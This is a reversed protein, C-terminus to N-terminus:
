TEDRREQTEIAFMAYQHANLLQASPADFPTYLADMTSKFFTKTARFVLSDSKQLVNQPYNKVDFASKPLFDAIGWTKDGCKQTQFAFMAYQHANSIPFSHADGSVM